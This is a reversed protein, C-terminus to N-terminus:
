QCAVLKIQLHFFQKRRIASSALWGGWRSPREPQDNKKARSIDAPTLSFQKDLDGELKVIQEDAAVAEANMSAFLAEARTRQDVTLGLMDAQRLVRMPGPYGNMEAATALGM